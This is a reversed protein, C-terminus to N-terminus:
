ANEGEKAKIFNLLEEMTVSAETSNASILNYLSDAEQYLEGDSSDLTVSFMNGGDSRLFRLTYDAPENASKALIIGKGDLNIYHENESSGASWQIKAQQTINNLGKLLELITQKM